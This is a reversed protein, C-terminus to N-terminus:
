KRHIELARKWLQEDRGPKMDSAAGGQKEPMTHEKLHNASSNPIPIFVLFLACFFALMLLRARMLVKGPLSFFTFSCFEYDGNVGGITLGGMNCAHNPRVRLGTPAGSRPRGM